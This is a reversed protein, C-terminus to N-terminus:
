VIEELLDLDVSATNTDPTWNEAPEMHDAEVIPEWQALDWALQAVTKDKPGTKGQTTLSIGRERALEQLRDKKQHVNFKVAIDPVYAKAIIREYADKDLVNKAETKSFNLVREPHDFGIDQLEKWVIGMDPQLTEIQDFESRLAGLEGSWGHEAVASKIRDRLEEQEVRQFVFKRALSPPDDTVVETAVPCSTTRYACAMCHDGPRAPFDTTEEIFRVKALEQEEIFDLDEASFALKRTLAKGYNTYRIFPFEVEVIDAPYIARRAAMAYKRAQQNFRSSPDEIQTQPPVFRDSKFDRVVLRNQEPYILVEDLKMRLMVGLAAHDMPRRMHEYDLGENWELSNLNDDFALGGERSYSHEVDVEYVKLYGRVVSSIEDYQDISLGVKRVARDICEGIVTIDSRRKAAICWDVYYQMVLHATIGFRFIEPSPGKEAGTQYLLFQQPCTAYYKQASSSHLFRSM